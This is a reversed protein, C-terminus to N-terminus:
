SSNPDRKELITWWVDGRKACVVNAWGAKEFKSEYCQTVSSVSGGKGAWYCDFGMADLMEIVSLLTEKAWHSGEIDRHVEFLLYRVTKLTKRSGRLVAPDAGETDVLMADVRPLKLKEVLTDVTEKPVQVLGWDKKFALGARENGEPADPFGITEGPAAEDAAAAHIVQFSGSGPDGQSDYGFQRRKEMLLKANNPAAEVCVAIPGQSKQSASPPSPLQTDLKCVGKPVAQSWKELSWQKQPDFLQLWAISDHGKNCGINLLIKDPDPDALAM